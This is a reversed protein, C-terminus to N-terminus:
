KGKGEERRVFRLREDRIREMATIRRVILDYAACRFPKWGEKWSQRRVSYWFPARRTEPFRGLFCAERQLDLIFDCFTYWDSNSLPPNTKYRRM